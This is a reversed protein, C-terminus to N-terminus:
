ADFDVKLNNLNSWIKITGDKEIDMYIEGGDFTVHLVDIVKSVNDQQIDLLRFGSKALKRTQKITIM